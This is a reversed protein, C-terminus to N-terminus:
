AEEVDEVLERCEMVTWMRRSEVDYAPSVLELRKGRWRIEDTPQIDERWRITVRYEVINETEQPREGIRASIPLVKAWVTARTHIEGAVINGDIDRERDRYLIDIREHLDDITVGMERGRQIAM